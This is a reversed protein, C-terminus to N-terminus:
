TANYKFKLAHMHYVAIPRLHVFPFDPFKPQHVHVHLIDLVCSRLCTICNFRTVSVHLEYAGFRLNGAVGIGMSGYVLRMMKLYPPVWMCSTSLRFSRLGHGRRVRGERIFMTTLILGFMLCNYGFKGEEKKEEEKAAAPADGGAAAAGGAAPAAAAGGGSGVNLM